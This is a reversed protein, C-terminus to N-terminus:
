QQGGLIAQLIAQVINPLDIIDEVVGSSDTDPEYIGWLSSQANFLRGAIALDALSFRGDKNVDCPSKIVTFTRGLCAPTIENGFGEALLGSSVSIDGTGNVNKAKFTLKLLQVNGNLGNDMGKSALIYKAQGSTNTDSHFIGLATPNLLQSNMLEFLNTNYTINIDEAYINIAGDVTVYVDFQTGGRIEYSNAETYLTPIQPQELTFEEVTKLQATTAGGIAYIKNNVTTAGLGFRATPMNAKTAWTNTIPDYEEVTNKVGGNYGGIVYIKNNLEAVGLNWRPTPMSAKATWTDTSPDYEEVSNAAGSGGIAYIKDNVVAAGFIARATPMNAKTTWTDTSPDYEEVKSLKSGSPGNGGIAYIKNNVVAVELGNRGTPMSAKTTWTDTSPDYEEVTTLLSSSSGYGGIAYIKNNVVALGLNYRATPMNAKAVWRDTSPDYEEVRRNDGGTAGGIAYIRNNVAAVEAYTRATLMSTKTTWSGLNEEAYVNVQMSTFLLCMVLLSALILTGLRKIKM